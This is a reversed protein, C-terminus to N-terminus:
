RMPQDPYSASRVPQLHPAPAWLLRPVSAGRRVFWVQLDSTCASAVGHDRVKAISIDKVVPLKSLCPHAGLLAPTVPLLSHQSAITFAMPM